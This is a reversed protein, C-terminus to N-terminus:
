TRSSFKCFGSKIYPHQARLVPVRSVWGTSPGLTALARPRPLQEVLFDLAGPRGTHGEASDWPGAAPPQRFQGLGEGGPEPGLRSAPGPVEPIPPDGRKTQSLRAQTIEGEPGHGSAPPTHDSPVGVRPPTAPPASTSGM